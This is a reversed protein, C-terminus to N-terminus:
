LAYLLSRKYYNIRPLKYRKFKGARFHENGKQKERNAKLKLQMSSLGQANLEVRIKELERLHMAQRRAAADAKLQKSASEFAQYQERKEQEKMMEQKEVLDAAEEADFKEWSRFDYGSIRQSESKEKQKSVEKSETVLLSKDTDKIFTKAESSNQPAMGRVPPLVSKGKSKTTDDAINGMTAKNSERLVNDTKRINRSWDDLQSAAENVESDSATQKLRLLKKRESDPLISM